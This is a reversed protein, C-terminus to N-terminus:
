QTVGMDAIMLSRVYESLTLGKASSVAFAQEKIDKAVRLKIMEDQTQDNSCPKKRDKTM